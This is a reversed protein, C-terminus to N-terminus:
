TWPQYCPPEPSPSDTGQPVTWSKSAALAQVSGIAHNLVLQGAAYPRSAANDALTFWYHHAKASFAQVKADAGSAGARMTTIADAENASTAVPTTLSEIDAMATPWYHEASCKWERYHHEEHAKSAAETHWAGRSGRAYYGKMDTVAASADAETAPPVSIPDRSGGTLVNIDVGGEISDVKLKWNRTSNDAVAKYTVNFPQEVTTSSGAAASSAYGAPKWRISAGPAAGAGPAATSAAATGGRGTAAGILAGIGAGGAGGIGAGILAGVGGGLLGGAIAGGVAGIAGGIAAGTGANGEVKKEEDEPAPAFAAERKGSSAQLAQFTEGRAASAWLPQREHHGGGLSGSSKARRAEDECTPCQAGGTTHQGCSCQRKLLSSPRNANAQFGSSSACKTTTAHLM